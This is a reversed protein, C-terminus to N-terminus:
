FYSVDYLQTPLVFGMLKGIPTIAQYKYYVETVFLQQNVPPIQPSTVPVTALTGAGTGIKSTVSVFNGLALQNTIIMVNNKNFVTTVIVRGNNAFDLPNASALVAAVTNSLSTGRSALNSGERSLNTLIQREYIVRGFDIVAFLMAVLMFAVFAFEVVAQGSESHSRARSHTRSTVTRM